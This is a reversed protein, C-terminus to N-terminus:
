RRSLFFQPGKTSHCPGWFAFVEAEALRQQQMSVVCLPLSHHLLLESQRSKQKVDGNAKEKQLLLSGHSKLPTVNDRIEVKERKNKWSSLDSRCSPRM